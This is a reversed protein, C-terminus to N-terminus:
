GSEDTVSVTIQWRDDFMFASVVAARDDKEFTSTAGDGSTFAGLETWGDAVLAASYAEVYDPGDGDTFGSVIVTTSSPDSFSSGTIETLGDPVPVDSPWEDPIEDGSTLTVDGEESEIM